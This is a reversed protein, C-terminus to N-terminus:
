RENCNEERGEAKEEIKRRAEKIEKCLLSSVVEAFNVGNDRCEGGAVSSSSVVKM